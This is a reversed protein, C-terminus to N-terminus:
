LAPSSKRDSTAKLKHKCEPRGPASRAREAGPIMHEDPNAVVNGKAEWERSCDDVHEMNMRGPAIVEVLRFVEPDLRFKWNLFIEVSKAVM